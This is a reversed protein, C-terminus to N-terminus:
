KIKIWNCNEKKDWFEVIGKGKVILVNNYRYYDHKEFLITDGLITNNEFKFPDIGDVYYEFNDNSFKDDSISCRIITTPGEHISISGSIEISYDNNMETSFGYNAECACKCNWEFSYDDTSMDNNVEISIIDNDSNTFKLVDGTSYPYYDVLAEPFAPCYTEQCSTFSLIGLTFIIKLIKM